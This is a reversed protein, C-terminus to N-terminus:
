WGTAARIAPVLADAMKRQTTTDPHYDCGYGDAALQEAIEVSTVQPDGVASVVAALHDHLQTRAAGDLMPSTALVVPTRPFRTRLMQVFAVYADVFPQGPDGGAFDNTGLAIVIVDPTYDWTWTSTADDALVRGYRMPMTETIDGGNNRYMGIGSYAISVHMADLEAAALAGWALDEAETSAGFSCNPGVGLVGYGCTISDGIMEILRSPRPTPVLTAGPFGYFTTTGIFSETRRAIVLDHEGAPLGSAIQLTMRGMNTFFTQYRQGDITPDFQNQGDDDIDISIASGDFRLAIEDGPWAFRHMADFRGILHVDEVPADGARAGDAVPADGTVLHSTGSCAACVLM